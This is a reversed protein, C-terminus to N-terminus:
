GLYAATLAPLDVKPDGTVTATFVGAQGNKGAPQPEAPTLGTAGVISVASNAHLHAVAQELVQAVSAGVAAAKAAQAPYRHRIWLFGIVVILAGVAVGILPGTWWSGTPQPPPASAVPALTQAWASAAFLYFLACKM